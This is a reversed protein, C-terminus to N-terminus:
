PRNYTEISSRMLKKKKYLPFFSSLLLGAGLPLTFHVEFWQDRKTYRFPSGNIVERYTRERGITMTYFGRYLGYAFMAGGVAFLGRQVRRWHRARNLLAASAPNDRLARRLNAYAVPQIMGDGKRFYEYKNATLVKEPRYTMFLDIPGRAVRRLLKENVETVGRRRTAEGHTVFFVGNSVLANVQPLDYITQEDVQVVLRGRHRVIDVTGEVREGSDLQVYESSRGLQAWLPATPNLGFLLFLTCLVIRTM